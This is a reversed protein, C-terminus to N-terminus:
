GLRWALEWFHHMVDPNDPGLFRSIEADVDHSLRLRWKAMQGSTPAGEGSEWKSLQNEAVGIGGAIDALQEGMLGRLRGLSPGDGTKVLVILGSVTGYNLTGLTM